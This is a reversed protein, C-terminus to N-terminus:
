NTGSACAATTREASAFRDLHDAAMEGAGVRCNSRGAYLRDLCGSVASCRRKGGRTGTAGTRRRRLAAHNPRNGDTGRDRCSPEGGPSGSNGVQKGLTDISQALAQHSAAQPALAKLGEEVSEAQRSAAEVEATKALVQQAVDLQKQLDEQPVQVRPDMKVTLPQEATRGDAGLKVTYEGPVVWPGGGFGFM